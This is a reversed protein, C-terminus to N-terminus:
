RLAGEATEQGSDEPPLLGTQLVGRASLSFTVGKEGVVELYYSHDTRANEFVFRIPKAGLEKYVFTREWDRIGVFLRKEFSSPEVIFEIRSATEDLWKSGTKAWKLRLEAPATGTYHLTSGAQGSAGYLALAPLGAVLSFGHMAALVTLTVLAAVTGQIAWVLLRRWLPLKFGALTLILSALVPAAPAWAVYQAPTWSVAYALSALFAGALLLPGWEVEELGVLAAALRFAVPWFVLLLGGAVLRTIEFEGVLLAYLTYPALPEGGTSVPPYFHRLTMFVGFSLLGVTSLGGVLGWPLASETKGGPRGGGFASSSADLVGHCQWCREFEPSNKAGCQPCLLEIEDDVDMPSPARMAREVDNAGSGGAKAFEDRLQKVSTRAYAHRPDLLALQEWIEAAEVKHDSAELTRALQERVGADKPWDEVSQRLERVADDYRNLRYYTAALYRRVNVKDEWENKLVQLHELALRFESGMYLKKALRWRQTHNNPHSEVYRAIDWMDAM